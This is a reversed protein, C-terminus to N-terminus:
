HASNCGSHTASSVSTKAMNRWRAMLGFLRMMDRPSPDGRFERYAADVNVVVREPDVWDRFTGWSVDRAADEVDLGADYRKRAEAYVFALDSSHSFVQSTPSRAM